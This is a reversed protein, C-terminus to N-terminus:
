PQMAGITWAGSASRPQGLYDVTTTAYENMGNGVANSTAGNVTGFGSQTWDTSALTQTTGSTQYALSSSGCATDGPICIHNSGHSSNSIFPVKTAGGYTGTAYFINNRYDGVPTGGSLAGNVYGVSGWTGNGGTGQGWQICTNNYIKGTGPLNGVDICSGGIDFLLNNTVQIPASITGGSTCGSTDSSFTIFTRCNWTGCSGKGINHVANGDFTFSSMVAGGCPRLEVVEGPTDRLVNAVLNFNTLNAGYAGSWYLHHQNATDTSGTAEFENNVLTLGNWGGHTGMWEGAGIVHFHCRAITISLANGTTSNWDISGAFESNTDNWFCIQLNPGGDIIMHQKNATWANQGTITATTGDNCSGTASLNWPEIVVEKGAAGVISIDALGGTGRIYVYAGTGDAMGPKGSLSSWACPSSQTCASGSGSGLDVWYQNAGAAPLTLSVFRPKPYALPDIWNVGGSTQVQAFAVLPFVFLAFFLKRM